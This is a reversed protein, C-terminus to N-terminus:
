APATNLPLAAVCEKRLAPRAFHMGGQLHLSNTKWIIMIARSHIELDAQLLYYLNGLKGM